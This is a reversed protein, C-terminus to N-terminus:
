VKRIKQLDKSATPSLFQNHMTGKKLLKIFIGCHSLFGPSPHSMLNDWIDSKTLTQKKWLVLFSITNPPCCPRCQCCWQWPWCFGAALYPRVHEIVGNKITSPSRAQDPCIQKSVRKQYLFKFVECQLKCHFLITSECHFLSLCFIFTVYKNIQNTFHKERDCLNAHWCDHAFCLAHKYQVQSLSRSQHKKLDLLFPTLCPIISYTEPEFFQSSGSSFFANSWGWDPLKTFRKFM